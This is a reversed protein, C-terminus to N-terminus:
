IWPRTEHRREDEAFGRSDVGFVVALVGFVALVAVVVAIFLAAEM